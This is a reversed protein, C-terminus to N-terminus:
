SHGQDSRGCNAITPLVLYVLAQECDSRGGKVWLSLLVYLLFNKLFRLWSLNWKWRQETTSAKHIQVGKEWVMFQLKRGLLIVINSWIGELSGAARVNQKSYHFRRLGCFCVQIKVGSLCGKWVRALGGRQAATKRRKLYKKIVLKIVLTPALTHLTGPGCLISSSSCGPNHTSNAVKWEAFVM